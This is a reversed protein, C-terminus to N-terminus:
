LYLNRIWPNQWSYYWTTDNTKFWKRAQDNISVTPIESVTGQATTQTQQTPTVNNVAPSQIWNSTYWAERKKHDEPNWNKYWYAYWLNQSLRTLRAIEDSTAAQPNAAFYELWENFIQDQTKWTNWVQKNRQTDYYHESDAKYMAMSQNWEDQTWWEPAVWFQTTDAKPAPSSTTRKPTTNTTTHTTNTTPPTNTTTSPTNIQKAVDILNNILTTNTTKIHKNNPSLNSYQWTFSWSWWNVVTWAKLAANLNAPTLPVTSTNQNNANTIVYSKWLSNTMIWKANSLNWWLLSLNEEKIKQEEISKKINDSNAVVYRWWVEIFNTWNSHKWINWTKVREYHWPTNWTWAVYQKVWTSDIVFSWTKPEKANTWAFVWNKLKKYVQYQWNPWYRTSWEKLINKEM